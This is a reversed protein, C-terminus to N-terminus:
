TLVGPGFAEEIEDDRMPAWVADDVADTAAWAGAEVGTIRPAAAVLKAIPKGGRTIVIEEGAEARALLKSLNTKAEHVGVTEKATASEPPPTHGDM